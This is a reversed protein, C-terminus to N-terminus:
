VGMNGATAVDPIGDGNFDGLVLFAIGSDNIQYFVGSQFTGDGNGMCVGIGSQHTTSVGPLVLDVKGDGNLDTALFSSSTGVITKTSPGPGFTGNGKGFLVEIFGQDSAILDPIGDGNTDAVQVYQTFLGLYDHRALFTPPKPSAATAAVAASCSLALLVITTRM